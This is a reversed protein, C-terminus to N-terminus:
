LFSNILYPVLMSETWSMAVYTVVSGVCAGAVIDVVDHVHSKVRATLILVTVLLGLIGFLTSQSWMFLTISFLGTAHGSPFAYRDFPEFYEIREPPRKKHIIVKLIKTVIVSILLVIVGSVFVAVAVVTDKQRVSLILLLVGQLLVVYEAFFIILKKYTDGVM